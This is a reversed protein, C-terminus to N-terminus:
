FGYQDVENGPFLKRMIKLIKKYDFGPVPTLEGPHLQRAPSDKALSKSHSVGKSQLARAMPGLMRVLEVVSRYNESVSIKGPKFEHQLAMFVLVAHIPNVDFETAQSRAVWYTLEEAFNEYYMVNVGGYNQQTELEEMHMTESFAVTETYDESEDSDSDFEVEEGESLTTSDGVSVGSLDLSTDGGLDNWVSTIDIIQKSIAKRVLATELEAQTLTGKIGTLFFDIQGTSALFRIDVGQFILDRKVKLAWLPGTRLSRKMRVVVRSEEGRVLNITNNELDRVFEGEVAGKEIETRVSHDFTVDTCVWDGPRAKGWKYTDRVKIVARRRDGASIRVNIDRGAGRLEGRMKRMVTSLETATQANTTIKISEDHMRLRGAIEGFGMVVDLPGEWVGRQQDYVQRILYVKSTLIQNEICLRLWADNGWRMFAIAAAQLTLESTCPHNKSADTLWWDLSRGNYELVQMWNKTDVKNTDSFKWVYVALELAWIKVDEESRQQTKVIGVKQVQEPAYTIQFNRTYSSMLIIGKIINQNGVELGAKTSVVRSTQEERLIRYARMMEQTNTPDMHLRDRVVSKVEEAERDITLKDKVLARVAAQGAPPTIAFAIIHSMQNLMGERRVETRFLGAARAMRVKAGSKLQLQVGRLWEAWASASPAMLRSSETLLMSEELASARACKMLESVTESFPQWKESWKTVDGRVSAMMQAHLQWSTQRTMALQVDKDYWTAALYMTLEEGGEPRLLRYQPNAERWRKTASESIWIVKTEKPRYMKWQIDNLLGGSDDAGDESARKALCAFLGLSLTKQASEPLEVVRKLQMVEVSGTGGFNMEIVSTQPNGGLTLPILAGPLGTLREPDNSGGKTVGYVKRVRASSIRYCTEALQASATRDLTTGASSMAAMLDKKVGKVPQDAVTALAFKVADEIPEGGELALSLFEGLVSSTWSKKLSLQISGLKMGEEFFRILWQAMGIRKIARGSESLELFHGHEEADEEQPESYGFIILSDDSHILGSMYVHTPALQGILESIVNLAAAGFASSTFNLNGQLWNGRIKAFGDRFQEDFEKKLESDPMGDLVEQATGTIGLATVTISQMSRVVAERVQAPIGGIQEFMRVFKFSNDGPSWKTSDASLFFIRRKMPMEKGKWFWTSQGAGWKLAKVLEDKIRFIKKQGGVHILENRLVASIASAVGEIIKLRARAGHDVIFIGRDNETRQNKNVLRAVPEDEFAEMAYELTTKDPGYREINILAQELTVISAVRGDAGRTTMSKTSTNKKDRYHARDVGLKVIQSKVNDAQAKIYGTLNAAVLTIFETCFTQQMAKETGARYGRQMQKEGREKALKEFKLSWELTENYIKVKEIKGHLGKAMCNALGTLVSRGTSFASCTENTGFIPYKGRAGLSTTDIRGARFRVQRGKTTGNSMIAAAAYASTENWIWVTLCNTLPRQLIKPMMQGFGSIDATCLGPLFRAMDLIGSVRAKQTLCIVSAMSCLRRILAEAPLRGDERGYMDAFGAGYLYVKEVAKSIEEVQHLSLSVPKILHWGGEDRTTALINELPGHYASDRVMQIFNVRGGLNSVTKGGFRLVVLDGGCFAAIAHKAARTPGSQSTLWEAVDRAVKLVNAGITRQWALLVRSEMESALIAQTQRAVPSSGWSEGLADKRSGVDIARALNRMVRECNEVCDITVDTEWVPITEIKGDGAYGKKETKGTWKSLLVSAAPTHPAKVCGVRKVLDTKIGGRQFAVWDDASFLAVSRLASLIIEWEVGPPMMRGVGNAAAELDRKGTEYTTGIEGTVRAACIYCWMGRKETQRYTEKVESLVAAKADALMSITPKEFGTSKLMEEEMFRLMHGRIAVNARGIDEQVQPMGELPPWGLFTEVRKGFKNSFLIEFKALNEPSTIKLRVGGIEENIRAMETRVRDWDVNAFEEELNEGNSSASVVQFSYQIRLANAVEHIARRYKQNKAERSAEPTLSVTVEIILWRGNEIIMIDPTKRRFDSWHKEVGQEEWSLTELPSTDFNETLFDSFSREENLDLGLSRRIENTVAEHRQYFLKDILELAVDPEM